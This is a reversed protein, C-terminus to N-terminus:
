SKGRVIQRQITLGKILMEKATKTDGRSLNDLAWAVWSEAYDSLLEPVPAAEPDKRTGTSGREEQQQKGVTHSNLFELLEQKAVPVDVEKWVRPANRRADAQTGFWQGQEDTYLRM